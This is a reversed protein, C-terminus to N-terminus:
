RILNTKQHQHLYYLLQRKQQQLQVKVLEVTELIETIKNIAIQVETKEAPHSSNHSPISDEGVTNVRYTPTIDTCHLSRLFQETSLM